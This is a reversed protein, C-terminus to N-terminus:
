VFSKILVRAVFEQFANGFSIRVDVDNCDKLLCCFSFIILSNVIGAVQTINHIFRSEIM